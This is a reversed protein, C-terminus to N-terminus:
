RGALEPAVEPDLVFDVGSAGASIEARRANENRWDQAAGIHGSAFWVVVEHQGPPVKELVYRGQADTECSVVAQVRGVDAEPGSAAGRERAYVFAGPVPAGGAGGRVQGRITLAGMLEISLAPYEGGDPMRLDNRFWDAYGEREVKLLLRGAPLGRLEFRGDVDTRLVRPGLYADARFADEVDRDRLGEALGWRVRADSVAGGRADTVRGTLTAGEKLALDLTRDEGPRVRLSASTAPVWADHEARVLLDVGPPAGQLAYTGTNSSVATLGRVRERVERSGQAEMWVRAGRVAGGDPDSITGRVTAGAPLVVDRTQTGLSEPMVFRAQEPDLLPAYGPATVHLEYTAARVGDLQYEGRSDTLATQEGELRRRPDALAVTAYPVPRGREDSVRGRLSGGRALAREVWLTEGAVVTLGALGKADMGDLPVFGQASVSFLLVPGPLVYNLAFRGDADTVTAVPSLSTFAGAVATVQAGVIAAGSSEEVVRGEIAGSRLLVFNREQVGEGTPIWHGIPAFGAAWVEVFYRVGPVLTDLRYAGDAASRAEIRDLRAVNAGPIAVAIVRAAAVGRGGEDRVVGEFGAGPDLVVRVATSREDVSVLVGDKFATSYGPASIRLVYRGPPLDRILFQGQADSQATALASLAAQLEFLGRRLDFREGQSEDRLVMVSAGGVPRGRADLVDGSLQTPAGLLITGVDLTRDARVHLGKLVVRRYPDHEVMLVAGPQAFVDAFSFAGEEDTLAERAQPGPQGEGPRRPVPASQAILTLRVGPLPRDQAGAHLRVQGVIVGRGQARLHMEPLGQLTVGDRLERLLDERVAASSAESPAEEDGSVGFLRRAGDLGLLLGLCALAALLILWRAGDRTHM